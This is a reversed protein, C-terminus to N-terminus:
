AAFPSWPGGTGNDPGGGAALRLGNGLGAGANAYDPAPAPLPEVNDVDAALAAVRLDGLGQLETPMGPNYTANETLRAAAGTTGAETANLGILQDIAETDAPRCEIYADVVEVWGVEFGKGLVARELAVDGNRHARALLAKAQDVNELRDARDQADRFSIADVGNPVGFLRRELSSRTTANTTREAQQIQQLKAKARVYAAAIYRKQGEASLSKNARHRAIETSLARHIDNITDSTAM